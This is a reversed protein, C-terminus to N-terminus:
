LYKELYQKYSGNTYADWHGKGQGDNYLIKAIELNNDPDRLWAIRGEKTENHSTPIKDRHVSEHIQFVGHCCFTSAENRFHSEGEAIALMIAPEEPFTAIIKAEISNDAYTSLKDQAFVAGTGAKRKNKIPTPTVDSVPVKIVPEIPSRIRYNSFFWGIFGTWLGLVVAIIIIRKKM